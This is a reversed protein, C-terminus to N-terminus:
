WLEYNIRATCTRVWNNPPTPTFTENDAQDQNLADHWIYYDGYKGERKISKSFWECKYSSRNPV